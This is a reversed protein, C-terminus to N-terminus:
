NILLNRISTMKEIPVSDPCKEEIKDCKDVLSNFRKLKRLYTDLSLFDLKEERDEDACKEETKNAMCIIKGSLLWNLWQHLFNMYKEFFDNSGKEGLCLEHESYNSLSAENMYLKVRDVFNIAVCDNRMLKFHGVNSNKLTTEHEAGEMSMQRQKELLEDIVKTPEIEEIRRNIYCSTYNSICKISDIRKLLINSYNLTKQIYTKFEPINEVCIKLEEVDGTRRNLSFCTYYRGSTSDSILYDQCADLDSEDSCHEKENQCMRKNKKTVPTLIEISKTKYFLKYWTQNLYIVKPESLTEIKDFRHLHTSQCSLTIAEVLTISVFECIDGHIKNEVLDAMIRYVKEWIKPVCGISFEQENMTYKYLHKSVYTPKNKNIKMITNNIDCKQEFEDDASKPLKVPYKVVVIKKNFHLRFEANKCVSKWVYFFSHFDKEVPNNTKLSMERVDWKVQLLNESSMWFGNPISETLIPSIFPRSDCYKNRFALVNQLKSVFMSLPYATRYKYSSQITNDSDFVSYLFESGCPSIIIRSITENQCFHAECSNDLYIVMYKIEDM